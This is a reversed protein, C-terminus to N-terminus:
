LTWDKLICIWRSCDARYRVKPPPPPPPPAPVEVFREFSPMEPFAPPGFRMLDRYLQQVVQAIDSPLPVYQELSYVYEELEAYTPFPPINTMAM